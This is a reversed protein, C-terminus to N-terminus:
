LVRLMTNKKILCVNLQQQRGLRDMEQADKETGAMGKRDEMEVMEAEHQSFTKTALSM